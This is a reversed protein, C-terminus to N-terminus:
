DILNIIKQTNDGIENISRQMDDALNMFLEILNPQKVNSPEKLMAGDEMCGETRNFKENLTISLSSLKSLQQRKDNLREYADMLTPQKEMKSEMKSEM